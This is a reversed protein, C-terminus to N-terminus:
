RQVNQYGHFRKRRAERIKQLAAYSMAPQDNTPTSVDGESEILMRTKCCEERLSDAQAELRRLREIVIDKDM